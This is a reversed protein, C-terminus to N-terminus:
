VASRPKWNRLKYEPASAIAYWIALPLSSCILIVIMIDM